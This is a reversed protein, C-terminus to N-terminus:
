VIKSIHEYHKDLKSLITDIDDSQSLIREINEINNCLSIINESVENLKPFCKENEAISEAVENSLPNKSLHDDFNDIM